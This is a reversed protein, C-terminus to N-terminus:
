FRAAHSERGPARSARHLPFDGRVSVVVSQPGGDLKPGPLGGGTPDSGPSLVALEGCELSQPLGTAPAAAAGGGAAPQPRWVRGRQAPTLRQAVEAIAHPGQCGASVALAVLTRCSALAHRRGRRRRPDRLREHFWAWLSDLRATAVPAAPPWPHEPDAWAAPRAAARLQALAAPHLVRGGVEKPHETDTYFDQGNRECGASPGLPRWGALRYCAGRFHQPAVFSEVVQVPYGFHQQWDAALRACALPLVRAAWNPWHGPDALVLFRANPAILHRRAPLQPPSWHLWRDRLKLHFAASSFVLLAVWQGQYEAVYRLVRGVAAASQLSHKTAIEHDCREREADQLLRM